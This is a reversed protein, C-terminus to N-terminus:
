SQAVLEVRQAEAACAQMDLQAKYAALGAEYGALCDVAAAAVEGEVQQKLQSQQTRYATLKASMQGALAALQSAHQRAAREQERAAEKLRLQLENIANQMTIVLPYSALGWADRPWEPSRQDM